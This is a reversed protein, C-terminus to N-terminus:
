SYDFCDPSKEHALKTASQRNNTKLFKVIQSPRKNPHVSPIAQIQYNIGGKAFPPFEICPVFNM